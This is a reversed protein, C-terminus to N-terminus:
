RKFPAMLRIKAEEWTDSAHPNAELDRFRQENPVKGVDTLTMWDIRRASCGRTALSCGLHWDRLVKETDAATCTVPQRVLLIGRRLCERLRMRHRSQGNWPGELRHRLVAM